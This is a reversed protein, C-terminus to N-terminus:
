GMGPGSATDSDESDSSEVVGPPRPAPANAVYGECVPGPGPGASDAAAPANAESWPSVSTWM